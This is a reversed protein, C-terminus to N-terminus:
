WADSENAEAARPLAAQLTIEPVILCPRAHVYLREGHKHKLPLLERRKDSYREKSTHTRLHLPAPEGQMPVEGISFYGQWYEVECAEGERM